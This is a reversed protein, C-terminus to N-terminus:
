RSRGRNRRSRSRSRPRGNGDGRGEARNGAVNGNPQGNGQPGGRFRNRRRERGPKGGAKRAPQPTPPPDWTNGFNDPRDTTDVQSRGTQQHMTFVPAQRSAQSPSGDSTPLSARILSRRVSGDTGGNPEAQAPTGTDGGNENVYADATDGERAQRQAM